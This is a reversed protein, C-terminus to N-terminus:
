ENSEASEPESSGTQTNSANQCSAIHEIWALLPIYLPDDLDRMKTGGGHHIGGFATSLPKLLIISQTPTELDLYASELLRNATIRAGQNNRNDSMWAAPRPYQTSRASYRDSHCHYCRGHLPWVTETFQSRIQDEACPDIEVHMDISQDNVGSLDGIGGDSTGMDSLDQDSEVTPLAGDLPASLGFDEVDFDLLSVDQDWEEFLARNCPDEIPESCVSEGCKEHYVIWSIFANYEAQVLPDEEISVNLLEHGRVIWSLMKSDQPNSLNILQEEQLCAMTQCEGEQVFPRFDVGPLHCRSCSPEKGEAVLPLIKREFFAEETLRDCTQTQISELLSLDNSVSADLVNIDVQPNSVGHDEDVELSSSQPTECATLCLWTLLPIGAFRSIKNIGRFNM